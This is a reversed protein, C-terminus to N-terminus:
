RSVYTSESLIDNLENRLSSLSQQLATAPVTVSLEKSGAPASIATTLDSSFKNLINLLKSLFLQTDYGMLVPQPMDNNVTPDLSNNKIPGLFIKPANIYLSEQADFHINNAGVEFNTSAFLLIDDKSSNLVIRNASLIGQSKGGYVNTDVASTIANKEITAKPIFNTVTQTSTLYLSSADKNIDELYPNIDEKDIFYGNVLLTIPDGNDGSVSWWNEGENAKLTSGFRLSAGWRSNLIHDGEFVLPNRTNKEDINNGLIPDGNDDVNYIVQSNHNVNNYLNFPPLYYVQTQGQIKTSRGPGTILSVIEGIVPFFTDSFFYPKAIPYTSLISPNNIDEDSPYSEDLNIYYVDGINSWDFFGPSNSDIVIHFVKGIGLSSAKSVSTNGLTNYFSGQSNRVIM